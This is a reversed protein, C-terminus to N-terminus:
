SRLRLTLKVEDISLQVTKPDSSMIKLQDLRSVLGGLLEDSLVPDSMPAAACHM